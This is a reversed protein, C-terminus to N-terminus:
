EGDEAAEVAAIIDHKSDDEAVDVGVTEAYAVWADRGSGKGVKPPREADGGAAADPEDAPDNQPAHLDGDTPELTGPSDRNVWEAVTPDVDVVSGADYAYTTGNNSSRYNQLVAFRSM